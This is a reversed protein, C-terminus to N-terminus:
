NAITQSARYSGWARIVELAFLRSETALGMDYLAGVIRTADDRTLRYLPTTDLVAAAMLVAEAPRDARVLQTLWLADPYPLNETGSALVPRTAFVDQGALPEVEVGARQLLPIADYGDMLRLMALPVQEQVMVADELRTWAQSIQGGAVGPPSIGALALFQIGRARNGANRAGPVSAALHPAWIALADGGLTAIDETLAILALELREDADEVELLGRWAMVRGTATTVPDAAASLMNTFQTVAATVDIDDDAINRWDALQAALPSHGYYHAIGHQLYSTEPIIFGIGTLSESLALPISLRM